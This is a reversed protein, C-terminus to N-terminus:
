EYDQREEFPSKTGDDAPSAPQAMRGSQRQFAAKARSQPIARESLYAIMETLPEMLRSPFGVVAEHPGLDTAERCGYCGFTFNLRDQQHPLVTCDVCTAQLVSTDGQRRAGGALNLDALVLWMLAEVPGEVVVVDPSAAVEGLPSLALAAIEGPAFRPMSAFMARGTDAEKVIGFGVLGRGSALGEPLPRFGFAAAAAPCSLGSADLLLREGHRARMLAQCYRLGDAPQWAEFRELHQEDRVFTVGVPESDLGLVTRLLGANRAWEQEERIAQGMADEELM